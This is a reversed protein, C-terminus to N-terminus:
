LDPYPTGRAYTGCTSCRDPLGEAWRGGRWRRADGQSLAKKSFLMWPILTSALSSGKHLSAPWVFRLCLLPLKGGSLVPLSGQGWALRSFGQADCPENRGDQGNVADAFDSGYGDRFGWSIPVFSNKIERSLGTYVWDEGPRAEGPNGCAGEREFYVALIHWHFLCNPPTLGYIISM